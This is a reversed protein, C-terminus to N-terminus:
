EVLSSELSGSEWDLLAEPRYQCPADFSELSTPVAQPLKHRSDIFFTSFSPPSVGATRKQLYFDVQISPDAHPTGAVKRQEYAFASTAYRM